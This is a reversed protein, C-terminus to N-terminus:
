LSPMSRAVPATVSILLNPKFRASPVAKVPRGCSEPLSSMGMVALLAAM